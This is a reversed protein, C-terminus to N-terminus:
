TNTLSSSFIEKLFIKLAEWSRLDANKNYAAGKSPDNGSDPNTFAHVADCYINVQWDVGADKMEAEFSALKDPPTVPDEAGHLILVKAKIFGKKAPYPTDLNGHFSAVGVLDAGSRALELAAGGGFCYGIAAIRNKDVFPYNLLADLGAQARSRMLMRDSRYITAQKGAEEPTTPRIGKGYMDVCFAVYGLAAIERARRQAYSNIGWWEHFILVAPTAVTITDDYALYGELVADGHTYEIPRTVIDARVGSVSFVLLAIAIISRKM